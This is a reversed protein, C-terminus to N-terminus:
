IITLQILGLRNLLRLRDLERITACADNTALSASVYKFMHFNVLFLFERIYMQLGNRMRCFKMWTYNKFELHLVMESEHLNLLTIIMPYILPNALEQQEKYEDGNETFIFKRHQGKIGYNLIFYNLINFNSFLRM